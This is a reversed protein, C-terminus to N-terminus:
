TLELSLVGSAEQKKMFKLKKSDCIPCELPLILKGKNTKTMRPNKSEINKRCKLSYSLM